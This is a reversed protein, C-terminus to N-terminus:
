GRGVEVGDVCPIINNPGRQRLVQANKRQTNPTVDPSAIPKKPITAQRRDELVAIPNEQAM